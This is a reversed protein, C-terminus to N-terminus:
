SKKSGLIEQHDMPQLLDYHEPLDRLRDLRVAYIREFIDKDEGHKPLEGSEEVFRQIEEFGAIVREQKKTHKAAKKVQVEVGLKNLLAHADENSKKNSM